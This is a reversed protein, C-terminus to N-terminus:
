KRHGMLRQRASFRFRLLLRVKEKIPLVTEDCSELLIENIRRLTGIYNNPERM